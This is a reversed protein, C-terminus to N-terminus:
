IRVSKWYVKKWYVNNLSSITVGKSTSAHLFKGDEIYIGVHRVKRSTKFFVLDGVALLGKPIEHGEKALLETTRPIKRDLRHKFTVQVFGSCDIGKKSLGGLKYRTGKWAQYQAYLKGEISLSQTSFSSPIASTNRQLNNSQTTSCGSSLTTVLLILTLIIGNKM